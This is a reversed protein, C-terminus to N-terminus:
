GQLKTEWCRKETAIAKSVCRDPAAGAGAATVIGATKPDPCPHIALWAVAGAALVGRGLPVFVM